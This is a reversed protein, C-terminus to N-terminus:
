ADTQTHEQELSELVADARALIADVSGGHYDISRFPGIARWWDPESQETLRFCTRSRDAIPGYYGVLRAIFATLMTKVLGIRSRDRNWDRADQSMAGEHAVGHRVQEADAMAPTWDIGMGRFAGHVVTPRDCEASQVRSLLRNAMGPAALAEIEHRRSDVWQLWADHDAIRKPRDDIVCGDEVGWRALSELAIWAHLFKSETYGNLSAFYLHIAKLIPAEPRSDAFAFIAEVFGAVWSPSCDFPLAPPQLAAVKSVHTPLGLHAFGPLAGRDGFPQFMGIDFPEGLVFGIVGAVFQVFSADPMHRDEASIALYWTDGSPVLFGPGRATGFRWGRVLNQGVALLM